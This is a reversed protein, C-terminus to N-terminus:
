PSRAVPKIPDYYEASRPVSEQDGLQDCKTGSTAGLRHLFGLIRSYRDPTSVVCCGGDAFTPVLKTSLRRDISRDSSLKNQDYRVSWAAGEM